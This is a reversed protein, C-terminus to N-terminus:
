SWTGARWCIFRKWNQRVEETRDTTRSNTSTSAPPAPLAPTSTQELKIETQNRAASLMESLPDNKKEEKQDSVDWRSRKGPEPHKPPASSSSSSSSSSSPPPLPPLLPLLLLTYHLTWIITDCKSTLISLFWILSSVNVSCSYKKWEACCSRRFWYCVCVLRHFGPLSPSVQQTEARLWPWSTLSQFSTERWRRCVSWVPGTAGVITLCVSLVWHQLTVLYM